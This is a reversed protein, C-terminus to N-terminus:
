QKDMWFDLLSILCNRKIVIICAIRSLLHPCNLKSGLPALRPELNLEHHFNENNINPNELNDENSMSFNLQAKPGRYMRAAKDCARTAEEKTDFTGLWACIKQIPNTIDAEHM